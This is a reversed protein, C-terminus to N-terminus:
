KEWIVVFAQAYPYDDSLSVSVRAKKASMKKLHKKAGGTCFCEPAGSKKSLIEVDQFSIKRGIGTGAAKAFAEKAAFRKAYFAARRKPSRSAALAREKKTFIRAEFKAGSKKLSAEIRRIDIIDTGIGLIM